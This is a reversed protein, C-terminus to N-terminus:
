DFETSHRWVMGSPTLSVARTAVERVFCADHSVALICGPYDAFLARVVPASLPSLNRTPEDLLLVNAGSMAMCLFMLKARQGGSLGRCPHRMEEATFKMSGLAVGIRVSEEKGGDRTLQEIPTRDMDLLDCPDQSMYFVRLDARGYLADRAARLLTSKGVGNRGTIVVKEGARVCLRVDRCLLRDGARLEPLKLDLVVKGPPLADCDLRAFIAEEQEPLATMEAAEREFRRGMSLVTHMKKKLLRATGPDRRSVADQAHEVRSRIQEYRRLKKDHEEREKRAVQAQHAFLDARQRVFDDYGQRSLSARVTQRRHLRELLLVGTAARRLLMEDHSIFLVAQPCSCLFAELDRVTEMDLDNSPEDLLLLEPELLLLRALQLKVREGGSFSRMTQDSYFIDASLQLQAALAGLERPTRDFFREEEAFYEYATKDRDQAPLEQPLLGVRGGPLIQGTVQAYADISSDGAIARLLTSKGNGEEGILAIREGPQVTFSLEEMLPVLDKKHVITLHRITLM